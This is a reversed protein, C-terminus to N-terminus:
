KSISWSGELINDPVDTTITSAAKLQPAQSLSLWHVNISSWSCVLCLKFLPKAHVLKRAQFLRQKKLHFHQTRHTCSVCLGTATEMIRGIWNFSFRVPKEKEDIEQKLLHM